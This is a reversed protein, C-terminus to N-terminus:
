KPASVLSLLLAADLAPRLDSFEAHNYEYENMPEKKKINWLIYASAKLYMASIAKRAERPKTVTLETAEARLDEIEDFQWQLLKRRAFEIREETGDEHRITFTYSSHQAVRKIIEQYQQNLNNLYNGFATSAEPSTNDLLKTTQPQSTVLVPDIQKPMEPNTENDNPNSM